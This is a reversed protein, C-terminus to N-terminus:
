ENGYKEMVRNRVFRTLGIFAFILLISMAVIFVRELVNNVQLYLHSFLFGIGLLLGSWGLQGIINIIMFRRFPIRALGGTFLIVISFGLGMSLKSLLLISMHYRHFLHKTLEVHEKTISFYRGFRGLFRDGYRFGIWYWLADGILAGAMISLYTPILTFFGGRVLVGSLLPVWPDAILAGAVLAIYRYQIILEGIIGLSM